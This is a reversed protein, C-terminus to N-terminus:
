YLACVGFNGNSLGPFCAGLLQTKGLIKGGSYSSHSFELLIFIEAGLINIESYLTMSWAPM